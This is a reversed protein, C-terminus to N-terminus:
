SLSGSDPNVPEQIIDGIISVEELNEDPEETTCVKQPKGDDEESSSTVRKQTDQQINSVDMHIASTKAAEALNFLIINEEITNQGGTTNCWKITAENKEKEILLNTGEIFVSGESICKTIYAEEEITSLLKQSQVENLNISDSGIINSQDNGSATDNDWRQEKRLKQGFEISQDLNLSHTCIKGSTALEYFWQVLMPGCDYDNGKLEPIGPKKSYAFQIGKGVTMDETKIKTLDSITLVLQQDIAQGIPNIYKISAVKGTDNTTVYLGVWHNTSGLNGNIPDVNLPVMYAWNPKTIQNLIVKLEEESQAQKLINDTQIGKKILGYKISTYDYWETDLKYASIKTVQTAIEEKGLFRGISNHLLKEKKSLDNIEKELELIQRTLSHTDLLTGKKNILGEQQGKFSSEAEKGKDVKQQLGLIQEKLALVEAEIKTSGYKEKYTNIAVEIKDRTMNPGSPVKQLQPIIKNLDLSKDKERIFQRIQGLDQKNKLQELQRLDANISELEKEQKNLNNKLEKLLSDARDKDAQKESRESQLKSGQNKLQQAESQSSSLNRKLGDLEEIFQKIQSQFLHLEEKAEDISEYKALIPIDPIFYKTYPTTEKAKVYKGAEKELLELFEQKIQPDKVWEPPLWGPYTGGHTGSFEFQLEENKDNFLILTADCPWCTLKTIGIYHTGSVGMELLRDFLKMEAHKRPPGSLYEINGNKIATFIETILGQNAEYANAIIRTDILPRLIEVALERTPSGDSYKEIISKSLDKILDLKREKISDYLEAGLSDKYEEATERGEKIKAGTISDIIRKIQKDAEVELLQYNEKFPAKIYNTLLPLYGRAYEPIENNSSVFFKDRIHCVAVCTEDGTLLRALSDLNALEELDLSYYPETSAKVKEDDRETQHLKIILESFEDQIPPKHALKKVSAFQKKKV